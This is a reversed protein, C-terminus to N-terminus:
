FLNYLTNYCEIPGQLGQPEKLDEFSGYNYHFGDFPQLRRGHGVFTAHLHRSLALAWVLDRELIGCTPQAFCLVFRKM